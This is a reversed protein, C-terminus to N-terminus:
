KRHGSNSSIIKQLKRDFLLFIEEKLVFYERFGLVHLFLKVNCVLLTFLFVQLAVYAEKAFRVGPMYYQEIARVVRRFPTVPLLLETSKQYRRIERLASSGPRYRRPKKGNSKNM